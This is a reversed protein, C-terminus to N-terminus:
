DDDEERVRLALVSGDLQVVGWVTVDRDNRLRDCRVDDFDTASNTVVTRGDLRFTLNPCRGDLRSVEGDLRISSPAPAAAQTVTISTGAVTLGGTRAAGTNPAVTYRVNGDGSGAGTRVSIWPVTSQATWACNSGSAEVRATGDGGNSGFSESQPSVGFACAPPAAAQRVTITTGAATITGTRAGGSNTAVVYRADGNGNGGATAVTIWPVSSVV